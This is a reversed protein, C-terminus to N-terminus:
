SSSRPINLRRHTEGLRNKDRVPMKAFRAEEVPENTVRIGKPIGAKSRKLVRLVARRDVDDLFPKPDSLKPSRHIDDHSRETIGSEHNRIRMTAELGDMEPMQVDM